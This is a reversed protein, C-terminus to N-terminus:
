SLLKNVLSQSMRNDFFILLRISKREEDIEYFLSTNPHIIAKRVSLKKFFEFMHPNKQILSITEFVENYFNESERSTFRNEINLLIEVFTIEASTSWFVDM